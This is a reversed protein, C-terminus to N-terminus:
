HRLLGKGKKKKRPLGKHKTKAYHKLKKKGMKLLGRNRKHLKEPHHLAIATAQQQAVSRAPV